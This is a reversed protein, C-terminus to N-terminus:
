ENYDEKMNVHIEIKGDHTADIYKIPKGCLSSACGESTWEIFEARDDYVVEETDRDIIYLISKKDTLKIIDAVILKKNPYNHISMNTREFMYNNGSM